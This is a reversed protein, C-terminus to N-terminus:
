GFASGTLFWLCIDFRNAAAAANIDIRMESGAAVHVPTESGGIATTQWEGPVDSDTADVATVIDTGDDLIDVSAGPDDDHPSVSVYVLTANIPMMFYAAGASSVAASEDPDAINQTIVILRENM